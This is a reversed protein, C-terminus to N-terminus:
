SRKKPPPRRDPVIKGSEADVFVERGDVGVEIVPKGSETEREISYAKRGIAAEAIQLATQFSIKSRWHTETAAAMEDPQPAKQSHNIQSQDVAVTSDSASASQGSFFHDIAWKGVFGGLVALSVAIALLSPKSRNM